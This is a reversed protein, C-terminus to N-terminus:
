HMTNCFPHLQALVIRHGIAHLMTRAHSRFWHALPPSEHEWPERLVIENINRYIPMKKLQCYYHKWGLETLTTLHWCRTNTFPLLSPLRTRTSSCANSQKLLSGTKFATWECELYIDRYWQDTTLITLIHLTCHRQQPPFPQLQAIPLVQM